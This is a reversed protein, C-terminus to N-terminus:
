TLYKELLLPSFRLVGAINDFGYSADDAPLLAAVDLDLGLLDRVANRYEARNLRHMAETRGPNPAAAAASDLSTELWAAFGEAAARDPRRAGSPPMMGARVKRVVQEWVAADRGPDSVDLADLALGGTKLRQNHCTTCYTRVLAASGGATPPLVAGPSQAVAPGPAMASVFVLAALPGRYM